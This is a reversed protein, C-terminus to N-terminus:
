CTVAIYNFLGPWVRDIEAGDGWMFDFYYIAVRIDSKEDVVPTCSPISLDDSGACARHRHEKETGRCFLDLLRVWLGIYDKILLLSLRYIWSIFVRILGKNHSRLAQRETRKEFSLRRRGLRSPRAGCLM